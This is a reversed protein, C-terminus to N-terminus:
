EEVTASSSPDSFSALPRTSWLIACQRASRASFGPSSLTAPGASSIPTFFCSRAFVMGQSIEVRVVLAVASLSGIVNNRRWLYRLVKRGGPILSWVSSAAFFHAGEVSLDYMCRSLCVYRATEERALTPGNRCVCLLSPWM